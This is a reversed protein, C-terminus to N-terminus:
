RFRPFSSDRKIKFSEGFRMEREPKENIKTNAKNFFSLDLEEDEIEDDSFADKLSSPESDDNELPMPPIDDDGVVFRRVPTEHHSIQPEDEDTFSNSGSNSSNESEEKKLSERSETQSASFEITSEDRQPEIEEQKPNEKIDEHNIEENKEKPTYSKPAPSPSQAKSNPTNEEVDGPLASVLELHQKYLAILRNKFNAVERQIKQLSDNEKEIQRRANGIMADAKITADRMIIEAKTKSERILSDGLKQASLIATRLSEEDDRYETLKDALIELKRELDAKEEILQQMDKAVSELYEEVDDMRYGFGLAKEFKKQAIEKPNPM